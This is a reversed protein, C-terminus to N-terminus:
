VTRCFSDGFGVCVGQVGDKDLVIISHNHTCSLARQVEHCECSLFTAPFVYSRMFVAVCPFLPLLLFM